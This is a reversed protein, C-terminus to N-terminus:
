PSPLPPLLTPFNKQIGSDITLVILPSYHNNIKKKWKGKTKLAQRHFHNLLLEQPTLLTNSWRMITNQMKKISNLHGSTNQVFQTALIVRRIKRGVNWKSRSKRNMKCHHYHSHSCKPNCSHYCLYFIHYNYSWCHFYYYKYTDTHRRTDTYSYIM